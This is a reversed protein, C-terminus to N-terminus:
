RYRRIYKSNEFEFKIIYPMLNVIEMFEKYLFTRDYYNIMTSLATGHTGIRLTKGNKEELIKKLAEINRNQVENLSEGDMLKYSFDNWQKDTYEKFNDIWGDSIKRERLDEIVNITINKNISIPEITQITRKYPSSFIADIHIKEFIKVLEIAKDRGEVSLPRTEDKISLDPISHRIFYVSTM